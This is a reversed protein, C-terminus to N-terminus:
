GRRIIRGLKFRKQMHMESCGSWWVLLLTKRMLRTPCRRGIESCGVRARRRKVRASARVVGEGDVGWNRRAGRRYGGVLEGGARETGLRGGGGRGGWLERSRRCRGQGSGRGADV